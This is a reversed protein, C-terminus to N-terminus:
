WLEPAGANLSSVGCRPACPWAHAVGARSARGRLGRVVAPGPRPAARAPLSLPPPNGPCVVGGVGGGRWPAVAACGEGKILKM